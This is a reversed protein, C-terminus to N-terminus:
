WVLPILAKVRQKYERYESGFEQEMFQEETLSKLRLGLAAFAVAILGRVEGIVVATGLLALLIGSYIPHRVIAYPGGRILEHGKKVTVTGSWNRGLFFRAVIAITAGVVAIAVGVWAVSLTDPLFRWALPGIALMRRFLLAASVALFVSHRLRSLRSQRRAAPSAQLATVAWVMVFVIWIADLARRPDFHM